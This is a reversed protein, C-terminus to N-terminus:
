ASRRAGAVAQVPRLHEPLNSFRPAPVPQGTERQASIWCGIADEGMEAAAARTPGDTVLGPLDPITVLFASNEGSWEVIMAYRRIEALENATFPIPAEHFMSVEMTAM